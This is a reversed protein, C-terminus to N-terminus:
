DIEFPIFNKISYFDNKLIEFEYNYAEIMGAKEVISLSPSTIIERSRIYWEIHYSSKLYPKQLTKIKGPKKPFCIWFHYPNSDKNFNGSNEKIEALLAANMYNNNFTKTYSIPVGSGAPRAAAELFIIEREKTFFVEFHACGSKLGLLANAQKCFNIIPNRVPDNPPLM